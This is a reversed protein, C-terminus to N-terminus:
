PRGTGPGGGTEPPAPLEGTVVGSGLAHAIEADRGPKVRKGSFVGASRLLSAWVPDAVTVGHVLEPTLQFLPVSRKPRPATWGRQSATIGARLCVMEVQQRTCSARGNLVDWPLPLRTWVLTDPDVDSGTSRHWRVLDYAMLRMVKGPCAVDLLHLAGMAALCDLWSLRAINYAQAMLNWTTSDDGRYVVMEERDFDSREWLEELLDACERMAASWMGLLQGRETDSLRALVQAATYVLSIMWWDTGNGCRRLLMEAVEDFPNGRGSLSFERRLNRRAVYYAVFYAAAPDSQFRELTIRAALGSRGLLTLRRKDQEGRLTGAKAELRRLARFRRNYQRKSVEMGAAERKRRDLRDALFDSHGPTWGVESGVQAAFAMLADPTDTDVTASGDPVEFLRATAAVQRAGGVPRAFDENMSTVYGRRRGSNAAARELLARERNTLGQGDPELALNARLILDAIDEPRRRQDLSAYLEALIARADHDFGPVVGMIPYGMLHRRPRRSFLAALRASRSLRDARRSGGARSIQEALEHGFSTKGVATPGDVGVRLRGDGLALVRDAVRKVLATREPSTPAPHPQQWTSVSTYVDARRSTM